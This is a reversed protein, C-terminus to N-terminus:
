PLDTISIKITIQVGPRTGSAPPRRGAPVPISRSHQSVKLIKQLMQVQRSQQINDLLHQRNQQAQRDVLGAVAQRGQGQTVGRGLPHVAQAEIGEVVDVPQAQQGHKHPKPQALATGTSMRYKLFGM